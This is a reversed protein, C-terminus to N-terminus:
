QVTLVLYHTLMITDFFCLRSSTISLRLIAFAMVFFFDVPWFSVICIGDFYLLELVGAKRRGREIIPLTMEKVPM